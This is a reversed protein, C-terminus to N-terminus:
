SGGFPCPPVGGPCDAPWRRRTTPSSDRRQRGSGSVRYERWDDPELFRRRKGQTDGRTPPFWVGWGGCWARYLPSAAQSDAWAPGLARFPACLCPPTRAGTLPPPVRSYMLPTRLPRFGRLPRKPVKPGYWVYRTGPPVFDGLGKPLPQWAFAPRTRLRSIEGGLLAPM